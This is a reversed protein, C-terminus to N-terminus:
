DLRRRSRESGPAPVDAPAANAAATKQRAEDMDGQHEALSQQKARHSEDYELEIFIPFHDSGFAELRAIRAVRFHDSHFFHDLPWRVLPQGAHFTNFMGRGIRPDLLRSIKRFLRTTPSWAVDNLDGTVIIPGEDKRVSRAVMLLEADRETSANNETPSPPAPHLFHMRIALDGDLLVRAHISPIDKEVLFCLQADELPWKSFVHMGYLNEQPCRVYHPHSETLATLRRDWWHDTELLVLVDPSHTAVLQLLREAQRNPALVNAAMVSIRKRGDVAGADGVEKPWLPSYPIIWWLQYILCLTTLVVMSIQWPKSWSLLLIQIFILLSLGAALQLRPFDLGRIPWAPHQWLPLLTALWFIASVLLLAGEIM